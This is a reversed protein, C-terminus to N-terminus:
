DPDEALYIAGELVSWLSHYRFLKSVPVQSVKYASINFSSM